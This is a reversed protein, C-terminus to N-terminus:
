RSTSETKRLDVFVRPKRRGGEFLLREIAEPAAIVIDPTVRAKAYLADGITRRFGPITASPALAFSSTTPRATATDAGRDRLERSGGGGGARGRHDESVAHDGEGEVPAAEPGPDPRHPRGRERLPLRRAGRFSVDGTRYRILPMGEMQLSTIVLEGIEGEPVTRGADDVIEVVVLDPHSHLGQHAPCEHFALGAETLGYTSFLEGGWARELARGLANPGLGATM